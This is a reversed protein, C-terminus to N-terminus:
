RFNLGAVVERLSNNPTRPYGHVPPEDPLTTIFKTLQSKFSAERDILSLLSPFINWTDLFLVPTLSTPKKLDRGFRVLVLTYAYHFLFDLPEKM